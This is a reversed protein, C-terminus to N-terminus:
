RSIPIHNVAAIRSITSDHKAVLTRLSDMDGQLQALDNKLGNIETAADSLAQSVNAEARPNACAAVIFTACIFVLLRTSRMFPGLYSHVPAKDDDEAGRLDAPVTM